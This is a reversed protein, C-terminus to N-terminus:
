GGILKRVEVAVEAAVDIAEKAPTAYPRAASTSTGFEQFAAYPMGAVVRRAQAHPGDEVTISARLAGTDVPALQRALDAILNAGREVGAEIAEPLGARIRDFGRTDVSM